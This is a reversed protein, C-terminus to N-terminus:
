QLALDGRDLFCSKVSDGRQEVGLQALQRDLIVQLHDTETRGRFELVEPGHQLLVPIRAGVIDVHLQAIVIRRGFPRHSQRDPQHFLSALYPHLRRDLDM